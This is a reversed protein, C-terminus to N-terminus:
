CGSHTRWRVELRRPKTPEEDALANCGPPPRGYAREIVAKAASVRVHESAASRALSALVNLAELALTEAADRFEMMNRVWRRERRLSVRVYAGRLRRRTETM